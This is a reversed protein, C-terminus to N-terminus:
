KLRRRRIFFLESNNYVGYYKIRRNDNILQQHDYTALAYRKWISKWNIKKNSFLDKIARKLQYVRAEESLYVNILSNDFRRISINILQKQELQNLKSFSIKSPHCKIDSLLPDTSLIKSLRSYINSIFEEHSM